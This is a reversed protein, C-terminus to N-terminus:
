WEDNETSRQWNTLEKFRKDLRSYLMLLWTEYQNWDKFHDFDSKDNSKAYCIFKNLVHM